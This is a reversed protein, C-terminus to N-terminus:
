LSWTYGHGWEFLSKGITEAKYILVRDQVLARDQVFAWDLLKSALKTSFYM